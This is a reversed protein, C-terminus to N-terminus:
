EPTAYHLTAEPAAGAAPDVAPKRKYSKDKLATDIAAKFSEFPQAGEVFYDNVFIAPTGDVGAAKSADLDFAVARAHRHTTLADAFQTMDCGLKKAQDLLDAVQINRQNAFLADHFTWYADQGKQRMVERAAEAALPADNHFPLPSDRWVIRVKAGYTKRVETLTEDVRKCFPCQYDSFVQLTVPANSPGRVPAGKADAPADGKPARKVEPVDAEKGNKILADYLKSQPTGTALVARALVMQEDILAKFKEFPQAGTLKRGNVFFAPTGTAGLARAQAQDAKIAATFAHGETSDSSVPATPSIGLTSALRALDDDELDRQAAFLADHAAWFGTDGKLKRARMSLMAEPVARKHFPLPQHKWVIRVADGYTERVKALTPEVKRCYPCEFDAFEVITVLAKRSDGRVPANGVTVKFVTKDDEVELGIGQPEHKPAKFNAQSATVYVSDKPTGAAVYVRAVSLQEDILKKFEDVPQAGSLLVGNIYSAPTGRVGVFEALAHDQEVKTLWTHAALGARFSRMDRVGSKEAWALYSDIGLDPQREFTLDHFRWFAEHGALAFVGMAAEAAPKANPHFPLPENKWVVRLNDAGYAAQLEHLRPALKGCFPCQFDSFVVVTVLADRNGWTPDASTVPVAAGSDDWATGHGLTTMSYTGDANAVVPTSTVTANQVPTAPAGGCALVTMTALVAWATHLRLKFQMEKPYGLPQPTATCFWVLSGWRRWVGLVARPAGLRRLRCTAPFM